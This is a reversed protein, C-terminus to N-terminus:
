VQFGPLVGLDTEMGGLSQCIRFDAESTFCSYRTLGFESTDGFVTQPLAVTQTLGLESTGGFDAESTFGSGVWVSQSCLCPHHFTVEPANKEISNTTGSLSSYLFIPPRANGHIIHM